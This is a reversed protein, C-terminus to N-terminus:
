RSLGKGRVDHSLSIVTIIKHVNSFEHVLEETAFLEIVNFGYISLQNVAATISKKM